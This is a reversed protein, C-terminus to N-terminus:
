WTGKCRSEGLAAVLTDKSRIGQPNEENLKAACRIIMVDAAFMDSFKPLTAAEGIGFLSRIRVYLCTKRRETDDEESMFIFSQSAGSVTRIIKTCSGGRVLHERNNRAVEAITSSQRFTGDLFDTFRPAYVIVMDAAQVSTVSADSNTLWQFPSLFSSIVQRDLAPTGEALYFSVRKRAVDAFITDSVATEAYAQLATPTDAALVNTSLAFGISVALRLGLRRGICTWSRLLRAGCVSM